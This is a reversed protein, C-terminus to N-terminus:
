RHLYILYSNSKTEIRMCEEGDKVLLWSATFGFTNANGIGFYSSEPDNLYQEYCWNFAMKKALSPKKYIDSLTHRYCRDGMEMLQKGRKTSANFEKM